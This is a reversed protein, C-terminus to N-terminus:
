VRPPATVALLAVLGSCVVSRDCKFPLPPVTSQNLHPAYSALQRIGEKLIRLGIQLRLIPAVANALFLYSLTRVSPFHILAM